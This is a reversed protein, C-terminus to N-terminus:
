TAEVSLHVDAGLIDRAIRTAHDLDVIGQTSAHLYFTPLQSGDRIAQVVYTDSSRRDRPKEFQRLATLAASNNEFSEVLWTVFSKKIGKDLPGVAALKAWHDVKDRAEKITKWRRHAYFVRGGTKNMLWAQRTACWRGTEASTFSETLYFGHGLPVTKPSM